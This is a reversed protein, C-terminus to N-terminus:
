LIINAFHGGSLTCCYTLLYKHVSVIYYYLAEIYFCSAASHVLEPSVLLVLKIKSWVVLSAVETM